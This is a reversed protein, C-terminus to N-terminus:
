PSAFRGIFLSEDITNDKIIFIFPHNASFNVEQTLMAFVAVGATAAAAETGEENMEVFAKHIIKSISLDRARSIGSLDAKSSSFLDRVGLHALSDNLSYSKELKFRPLQVNVEITELDETWERLKELTLQKEIEELGTTDDEIDDPLLIIMSVKQGQYPLELVQCKLEKIYGYPFRATQCMMKVTKTDKKNLRFPMDITDSKLFKEQWMGKFYIANVLVLKSTDDLVGPALLEPIKGETQEKVWKNIKKRTNETDDQFDVSVMEAGYMKKTSALFEPLFDYTKEGYLRNALKLTYSAGHKNLKANLSQFGSHVDKVMDFHLAKSLQAATDGRTGLFVMGMASSISYPSIFVNGTRDNKCLLLFIDLAFATNATSLPEM